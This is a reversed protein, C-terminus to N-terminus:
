LSVHEDEFKSNVAIFFLIFLSVWHRISFFPSWITSTSKSGHYISSFFIARSAVVFLNVTVVNQQFVWYTKQPATRWEQQLCLSLFPRKGTYSLDVIPEISVSRSRNPSKSITTICTWVITIKFISICLVQIVMWGLIFIADERKIPLHIILYKRM